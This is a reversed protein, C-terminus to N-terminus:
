SRAMASTKVADPADGVARADEADVAFDDGVGNEVDEGFWDEAEPEEDRVRAQRLCININTAEPSM